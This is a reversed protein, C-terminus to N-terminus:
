NSSLLCLNTVTYAGLKVEKVNTVMKGNQQISNLHKKVAKHRYAGLYHPVYANSFIVAKVIQGKVFNIASDIQM